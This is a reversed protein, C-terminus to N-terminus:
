GIKPPAKRKAPNSRHPHSHPHSQHKAPKHDSEAVTTVFKGYKVGKISILQEALKRVEANAGRVVLV